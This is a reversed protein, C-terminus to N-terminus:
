FEELVDSLFDIKDQMNEIHKKLRIKYAKKTDEPIMHNIKELLIYSQRSVEFNGELMMKHIVEAHDIYNLPELAYLLTGRSGM